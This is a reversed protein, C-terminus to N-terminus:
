VFVQDNGTGNLLNKQDQGELLLNKHDQGEDTKPQKDPTTLLQLSQTVPYEQTNSPNLFSRFLSLQPNSLKQKLYAVSM